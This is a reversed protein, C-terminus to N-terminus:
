NLASKQFRGPPFSSLQSSNIDPYTIAAKRHQFLQLTKTYVAIVTKLFFSNSLIHRAHRLIM